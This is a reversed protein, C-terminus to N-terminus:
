HEQHAKGLGADQVIGRMVRPVRESKGAVSPCRLHQHTNQRGAQHGAHQGTDDDCPQLMDGGGRQDDLRLSVLFGLAPMLMGM